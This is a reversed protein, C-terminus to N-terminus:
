KDTVSKQNIIKSQYNKIPSKLDTISNFPARATESLVFISSVNKMCLRNNMAPASNEAAPRAALLVTNAVVSTVVILPSKGVM